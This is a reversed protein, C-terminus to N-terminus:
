RYCLRVVLDAGDDGEVYMAVPRQSSGPLARAIACRLAHAEFLPLLATRRGAPELIAHLRLSDHLADARTAAPEEDLTVEAVGSIGGLDCVSRLRAAGAADSSVLVSRRVGEEDERPACLLRLADGVEDDSMLGEVLDIWILTHGGAAGDSGQADDPARELEAEVAARSTLRVTRGRGASCVEFAVARSRSAAHVTSLERPSQMGDTSVGDTRGGDTPSEPAVPAVLLVLRPPPEEDLIERIHNVHPLDASLLSLEQVCAPVGELSPLELLGMPLDSREGGTALQGTHQDAGAAPPKPPMSHLAVAAMAQGAQRRLCGARLDAWRSASELLSQTVEETFAANEESTDAEGRAHVMEVCPSIATLVLDVADEVARPTQVWIVTGVGANHLATAAVSAGYSLLVVAVPPPHCTRNLECLLESFSLGDSPAEWGVGGMAVWTLCEVAGNHLDSVLQSTSGNSHMAKLSPHQDLRSLTQYTALRAAATAHVTPATRVVVHQVVPM